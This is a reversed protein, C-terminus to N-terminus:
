SRWAAQPRVKTALQRTLWQVTLREQTWSGEEGGPAQGRGGEEGRGERQHLLADLGASPGPPTSLHASPPLPLAPPAGRSALSLSDRTFSRTAFTWSGGRGGGEGARERQAGEGPEAGAHSGASNSSRGSSSSPEV